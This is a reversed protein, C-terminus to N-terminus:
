FDEPFDEDEDFNTLFKLYVESKTGSSVAVAFWFSCFLTVIFCLVINVRFLAAIACAIIIGSNIAEMSDMLKKNERHWKIMERVKM